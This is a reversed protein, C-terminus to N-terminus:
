VVARAARTRRDGTLLLSREVASADIEQSNGQPPKAVTAAHVITM